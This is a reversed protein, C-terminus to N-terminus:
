VWNEYKRCLFDHSHTDENKVSFSSFHIALCFNTGSQHHIEFSRKPLFFSKSHFFFLLSYLQWCIDMIWKMWKRYISEGKLKNIITQLQKLPWNWICSSDCSVATQAMWSTFDCKEYYHLAASLVAVGIDM